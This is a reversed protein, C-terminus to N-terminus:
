KHLAIHLFAAVSRQAVTVFEMFRAVKDGGGEMLPLGRVAKITHQLAGGFKGTPFGIKGKRRDPPPHSM